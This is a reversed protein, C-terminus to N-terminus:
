FGFVPLLWGIFVLVNQERYSSVIRRKSSCLYKEKRKACSSGMWTGSAPGVWTCRPSLCQGFHCVGGLEEESGWWEQSTPRPQQSILNCINIWGFGIQPPEKQFSHEIARSTYSVCHVLNLLDFFYHCVMSYWTFGVTTTDPNFLKLWFTYQVM